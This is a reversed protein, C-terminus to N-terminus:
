PLAPDVFYGVLAHARSGLFEVILSMEMVEMLGCGICTGEGECVRISM